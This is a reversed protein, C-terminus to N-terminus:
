QLIKAALHCRATPPTMELPHHDQQVLHVMPADIGVAISVVGGYMGVRSLHYALPINTLIPMPSCATTCSQSERGRDLEELVIGYRQKSNLVM